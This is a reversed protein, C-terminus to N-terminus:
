KAITVTPFGCRWCLGNKTLSIAGKCDRVMAANRFDDRHKVIYDSFETSNRDNSTMETM